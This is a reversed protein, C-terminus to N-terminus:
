KSYRSHRLHDNRPAAMPQSIISHTGHMNAHFNQLLLYRVQRFM